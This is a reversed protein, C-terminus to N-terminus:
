FEVDELTVVRCSAHLAAFVSREFSTARFQILGLSSYDFHKLHGFSESVKTFFCDVYNEVPPNNMFFTM